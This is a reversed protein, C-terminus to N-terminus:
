GEHGGHGGFCSGPLANCAVRNEYAEFGTLTVLDHPERTWDSGSCTSVWESPAKELYRQVAAQVQAETLGAALHPVEV